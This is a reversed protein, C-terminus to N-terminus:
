EDDNRRLRSLIGGGRKVPSLFSRSQEEQKPLDEAIMARLEDLLAPRGDNNTKLERHVQDHCDTCPTILNDPHDPGGAFVPLIHHPEFDTGKSGVKM